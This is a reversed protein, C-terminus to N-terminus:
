ISKGVMKYFYKYLQEPIDHIYKRNSSVIMTDHKEEKVPDSRTYNDREDRLLVPSITNNEVTLECVGEKSVVPDVLVPTPLNPEENEIVSKMNTSIIEDYSEDEREVMDKTNQIILEGVCSMMEIPFSWGHGKGHLNKYYRGKLVSKRSNLIHNMEDGYICYRKDTSSTTMM